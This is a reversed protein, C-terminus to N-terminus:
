RRHHPSLKIVFVPKSYFLTFDWLVHLGIGVVTNKGNVVCDDKIFKVTQGDVGFAMYLCWTILLASFM